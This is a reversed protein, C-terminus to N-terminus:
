QHALVNLLKGSQAVGIEVLNGDPDRLYLSLIPGTAGTRKVPGQEITIGHKNLHAQWAEIPEQTLFCLDASGPIPRKAKPEFESGQVHLNIKQQGFKLATRTTGDTPQFTEVTMGLIDTYFAKTAELDTVTLVLHDLSNIRM